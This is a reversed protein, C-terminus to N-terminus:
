SGHARNYAVQDPTLQIGVLVELPAGGEEVRPLTLRKVAEEVRAQRASKEFSVEAAFSEKALIDEGQTVAVFYPVSLIQGLAAPGLWATLSLDIDVTSEGHRSRCRSQLSSVQAQYEIDTLDRGPGEKFQVISRADALVEAKPCVAEKEPKKKPTEARHRTGACSALGLGALAILVLACVSLAQQTHRRM